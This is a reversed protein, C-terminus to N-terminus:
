TGDGKLTDDIDHRDCSDCYLSVRLEPEPQSALRAPEVCVGTRPTTRAWHRCSACSGPVASLRGDEDGIRRRAIEAALGESVRPTM